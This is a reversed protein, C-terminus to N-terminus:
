GHRAGRKTLQKRVVNGIELYLDREADIEGDDRKDEDDRCVQLYFTQASVAEEVANLLIAAQASTLTITHTKTAM